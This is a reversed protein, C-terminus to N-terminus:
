EHEEVNTEAKHECNEQPKLPADAVPSRNPRILLQQRQEVQRRQQQQQEVKRGYRVGQVFMKFDHFPIPPFLTVAM